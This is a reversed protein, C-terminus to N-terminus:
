ESRVKRMAQDGLRLRKAEDRLLSCLQNALEDVDQYPVVVGCTSGVFAPIGGADAFCITPVACDAAELVVLPFPDERSPLLFIDSAIMFPLPSPVSGVFRVKHAVGSSKALHELDSIENRQTEAGVWVFQVPEAAEREVTKAVQVFLDPGKRWDTTGCGLILKEDPSLGLSIRLNRRESDSVKLTRTCKIFEHVVTLKKRSIGHNEHLNDAVPE